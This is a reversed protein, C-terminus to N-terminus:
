IFLDGHRGPMAAPQPAVRVQENTTADNKRFHLLGGHARCPQPNGPAIRVQNM